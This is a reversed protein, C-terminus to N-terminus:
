RDSSEELLRRLHPAFDYRYTAALEELRAADIFGTRFAIEELCAIKLGQRQKILQIFRSSLHLTEFRGTRSGPM